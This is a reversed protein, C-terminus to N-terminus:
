CGRERGWLDCAGGVAADDEEARRSGMHEAVGDSGGGGGTELEAADVEDVRGPGAVIGADDDGGVGDGTKGRGVGEDVEADAHTGLDPGVRM